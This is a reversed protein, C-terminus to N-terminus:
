ELACPESEGDDLSNISPEDNHRLMHELADHPISASFPFVVRCARSVLHQRHCQQLSYTAGQVQAKHPLHRFPGSPALHELHQTLRTRLPMYNVQPTHNVAQYQLHREHATTLQQPQPLPLSPHHLTPRQSATSTPSFLLRSFRHRQPSPDTHTAIAHVDHRCDEDSAPTPAVTCHGCGLIGPTPLM